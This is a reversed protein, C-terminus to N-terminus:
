PSSLGSRGPFAMDIQAETPTPLLQQWDFLQEIGCIVLSASRQRENQWTRLARYNRGMRRPAMWGVNIDGAIITFESHPLSDVVLQLQSYFQGKSSDAAGETPAYVAIVRARITGELTLVAIRSSIPQFAVVSNYTRQDLAFGVGEIHHEGGSYYLMM